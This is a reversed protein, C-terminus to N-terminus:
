QGRKFLKYAGEPLKMSAIIAQFMEPTIAIVNFRNAEEFWQRMYVIDDYIIVQLDEYQGSEDLITIAVEDWDMEITFM